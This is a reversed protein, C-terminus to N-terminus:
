LIMGIIRDVFNDNLKRRKFPPKEVEENLCPDLDVIECAIEEVLCPNENLRQDSAPINFNINPVQVTDLNSNHCFLTPVAKPLIKRAGNPTFNLFCPEFHLHCVTFNRSRITAYDINNLEECAIARLWKLGTQENAPFKFRSDKAGSM